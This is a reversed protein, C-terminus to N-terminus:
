GVVYMKGGVEVWAEATLVRGYREPKRMDGISPLCVFPDKWKMGDPSVSCLVRQGPGDEGWEQNSWSAFFTDAYHGIQAHHSYVGSLPTAHYILFSEVGQLIPYGYAEKGEQPWPVGWHIPGNGPADSQSYGLTSFGSFSCILLLAWCAFPRLPM